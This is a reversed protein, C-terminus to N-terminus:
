LAQRAGFRNNRRIESCLRCPTSMKQNGLSVLEELSISFLEQKPPESEEKGRSTIERENQSIVSERVDRTYGLVFSDTDVGFKLYEELVSSCQEFHSRNKQAITAFYFLFIMWVTTTKAEPNSKDVMSVQDQPDAGAQLLVRVTESDRGISASLLLTMEGNGKVLNPEESIKLSVYEHHSHWAAWHLYSFDKRTNFSFWGASGCSLIRGWYISGSNEGIEEPHSFPLQRYSNLVESVAEAFNFPVKHGERSLFLHWKLSWKWYYGRSYFIDQLLNYGDTFYSQKTRVFKLEALSLRLYVEDLNFDPLRGQFRRQRSDDRLYDRVTRHFFQVTYGFFIDESARDDPVMELLGKSLSDLQPRLDDHRKKIEENSYGQTPSSFPFNPDNLDELWSYALANMPNEPPDGTAIFLMQDSRKRDSPNISGLLKAFLEDLDKPISNLKEQLASQSDHHGVGELLSRVVLRAWLFVGNAAGVIDRVLNTYVDKVRDFNIDKEFMASAFRSIDARTLEHLRLRFNLSDSFTHMFETHPRSSVCIKIDTSSTWNRLSDALKWHELSDGEYEDLGDIFFCLRHKPFTRKSILKNFAAKIETIRFSPSEFRSTASDLADWEEPFIEPILDPYQKLTEFLLSRYLGELSTQLKEGSNWFFFQAFVLRKEGAWSELEKRVRSHQCLFKMLTSKGSGAKGSIHYIQNGSRLWAVFSDRTHARIRGQEAEQADPPTKPTNGSDRIEINHEEGQTPENEVQVPPGSKLDTPSENEGDQFEDEDVLSEERALVEEANGSSESPDVVEEEDDETSHISEDDNEAISHISENEDEELIWKFTGSEADAITDERAYINDFYLRRLIRNERSLSRSMSQLRSLASCIDMSSHINEEDENPRANDKTELLVKVALNLEQRLCTLQTATETSMQVGEKQIKDLQVKVSSQQESLMFNLRVLIQSRYRDLRGEIFAIEKEKRMSAVKVKLSQWKSNKESVQLQKLIKLLDQSLDHCKDALKCLEKENKTKGEVDSILGDTARELDDVVTSIHANEHTSGTTSKYIEYTGTIVGWSFDIFQLISAAFGVATIPDM